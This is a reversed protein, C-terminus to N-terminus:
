LKLDKNDESKNNNKKKMKNKKEIIKDKKHKRKIMTSSVTLVIAFGFIGSLTPINNILLNFNSSDDPSDPLNPDENDNDENDDTDDIVSVNLHNILLTLEKKGITPSYIAPNLYPHRIYFELTYVGGDSFNYLFEHYATNDIFYYQSNGSEELSDNLFINVYM